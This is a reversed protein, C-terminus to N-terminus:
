SECSCLMMCVDDYDRYGFLLAKSRVKRLVELFRDEDKKRIRCSVLRYASGPKVYERIKKLIIGENEMLGGWLREDTDVFIYERRGPLRCGLRLYNREKDM